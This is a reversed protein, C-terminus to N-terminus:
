LNQDTFDTDTNLQTSSHSLIEEAAEAPDSGSAGLAFPSKIKKWPKNGEFACKQAPAAPGPFIIGTDWM